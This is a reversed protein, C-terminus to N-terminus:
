AAPPPDQLAAPDVKLAVALKAVTPLRAEGGAELRAVTSLAVGIAEALQKQSM